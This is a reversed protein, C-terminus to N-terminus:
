ACVDHYEDCCLIKQEFRGKVIPFNLHIYTFLVIENNTIIYLIVFAGLSSGTIPQFMHLYFTFFDYYRLYNNMTTYVLIKGDTNYM